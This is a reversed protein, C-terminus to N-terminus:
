RYNNHEFSVAALRTHPTHELAKNLHRIQINIIQMNRIKWDYTPRGLTPHPKKTFMTYYYYNYHETTNIKKSSITRFNFVLM